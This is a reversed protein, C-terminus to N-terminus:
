QCSWAVLSWVIVQAVWAVSSLFDYVFTGKKVYYMAVAKGDFVMRRKMNYTVVFAVNFGLLM